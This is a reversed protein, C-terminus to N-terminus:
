GHKVEPQISSFFADVADSVEALLADTNIEREEQNVRLYVAGSALSPEESIFFPVPVKGELFEEIVEKQQSPVVLEVVNDLQTEMLQNIQEVILSSLSERAVKPLVSTIIRTLLPQIGATLNSYADNYTFSMDQVSRVFDASLNKTEESKAKVADDWGAQYGTEFGTLQANELDDDSVGSGKAGLASFEEFDEYLHAISMM